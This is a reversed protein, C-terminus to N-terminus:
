DVSRICGSFTSSTLQIRASKQWIACILKFSRASSGRNDLSIATSNTLVSQIAGDTGSPLSICVHINSFIYFHQLVDGCPASKYHRLNKYMHWGRGARTYKVAHTYHMNYGIIHLRCCTWQMTRYNILEYKGCLSLKKASLFIMVDMEM